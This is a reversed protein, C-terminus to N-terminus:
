QWKSGQPKRGKRVAVLDKHWKRAEKPTLEAKELAKALDAGTCLKEGKHRLRAATTIATRKM